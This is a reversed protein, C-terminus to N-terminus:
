QANMTPAHLLRGGAIARSHRYPSIKGLCPKCIGGQHLDDPIYVAFRVRASSAAYTSCWFAVAEAGCDAFTSLVKHWRGTRRGVVYEPKTHKEVSALEDNLKWIEEQLSSSSKDM